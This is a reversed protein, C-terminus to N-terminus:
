GLAYESFGERGETELLPRVEHLVVQDIESVIQQEPTGTVNVATAEIGLLIARGIQLDRQDSLLGLGALHNLRELLTCEHRTRYMGFSDHGCFTQGAVFHDIETRKTQKRFFTKEEFLSRWNSKAWPRKIDEHHECPM